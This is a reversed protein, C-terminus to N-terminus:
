DKSIMKVERWFDPDGWMSENIGAAYKEEEETPLLYNNGVALLNWDGNAEGGLIATWNYAPFRFEMLRELELAAGLVKFERLKFTTSDWETEPNIVGILKHGIKEQKTM